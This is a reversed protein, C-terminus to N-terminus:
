STEFRKAIVIPHRWAEGLEAVVRYEAHFRSGPELLHAIYAVSNVVYAPRLEAVMAGPVFNNAPARYRGEADVAEERPPPFFRLVEPSCLGLADIVPGEYFWGFVGVESILAAPKTGPLANLFVAARRYGAFRENEWKPWPEGRPDRAAGFGYAGTALFALFVAVAAVATHRRDRKWREAAGALAFVAGCYGLLIVFTVLPPLYWAHLHGIWAYLGVFLPPYAFYLARPDRRLLLSVLLALSGIACLAFAAWEAATPAGTRREGAYVAPEIPDAWTSVLHRPLEAVRATLDLQRAEYPRHSAPFLRKAAISHPIPSGYYASAFVLWLLPVAGYAALPLRWGSRPRRALVCGWVVPTALIGEPRVLPALSALFLALVPRGGLAAWPAALLVATLLPAEFGLAAVFVNVGHTGVLLAALLAPLPAGLLSEAVLYALAAAAGLLLVNAAFALRPIREAGFIRGLGGLVAVWVPSSSGMVPAGDLNWAPRGHVALHKAHRFTIYADDNPKSGQLALGVAVLAAVAVLAMLVVPRARDAVAVVPM